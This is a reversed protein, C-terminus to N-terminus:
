CLVAPMRGSNLSVLVPHTATSCNSGDEHCARFRPDLALRGLLRGVSVGLIREAAPNASIIRAEADYDIIGQAMTEFLNRCRRREEEIRERQRPM